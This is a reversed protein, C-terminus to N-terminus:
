NQSRLCGLSATHSPHAGLGSARCPASGTFAPWLLVQPGEPPVWCGAVALEMGAEEPKIGLQRSLGKWLGGVLGFLELCGGSVMGTSPM